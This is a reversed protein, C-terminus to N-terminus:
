WFPRRWHGWPYGPGYWFPDPVYIVEPARREPWLRYHEVAVVLYTTRYDGVQGPTTGTLPGVVTISRGPAYIAPDLFGSVRALFRGASADAGTPRGNEGLPQEVIELWTEDRRNEVRAVTGGWRVRTELFTEPQARAAALTPGRFNGDQIPDYVRPTTACGILWGLLLLGLWRFPLIQNM